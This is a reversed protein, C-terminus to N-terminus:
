TDDVTLQPLSLLEGKSSAVVFQQSHTVFSSAAGIRSDDVIETRPSHLRQLDTITPALTSV